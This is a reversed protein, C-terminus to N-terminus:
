AARGTILAALDSEAIGASRLRGPLIRKPLLGQNSLKDLTRLSVGLREAAEKRRVIRPRAAPVATTAQPEAQRQRLMGLLRTRDAQSITPDSKLGARIVEITTPLM